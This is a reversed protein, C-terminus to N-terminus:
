QGHGGGNVGLRGIVDEYGTKLRAFGANKINEVKAVVVANVAYNERNNVVGFVREVDGLLHEEFRVLSEPM